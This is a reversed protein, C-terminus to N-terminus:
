ESGKDRMLREALVVFLAEMERKSLDNLRHATKIATGQDVPKSVIKFIHGDPAMVGVVKSGPDAVIGRSIMGELYHIKDAYDHMAVEFYGIDNDGWSDLPNKMVIGALSELWQEANNYEKLMTSLIQKLDVDRCGPLLPKVRKRLAYRLVRIDGEFSFANKVIREVNKSLKQYAEALELLSNGLKKQLESKWNLPVHDSHLENKDIGIAGPIDDFLLRLPDMANAIASRVLQTEKSVTRTFRSYKPLGDIFRVLPAVISLLTTNRVENPAGDNETKLVAIYADFLERHIGENKFRKVTFIDPRKLLLAIETEDIFPIYTGDRFLAMEDANVLLFLVIYLPIPGERLGFPPGKLVALIEEVKTGDNRDAGIMSSIKEWLLFLDSAKGPAIFQWAGNQIEKHFGNFLFLSRYIAVEPGFGEMGLAPKHQGTVMAEALKRRAMAASGSLRDHNIMEMKINPCSSYHTDCLDSMIGSLDRYSGIPRKDGNVFWQIATSGPHFLRNVFLRLQIESVHVRYRAEKRAVGDRQLEAAENLVALAAAHEIALEKIQNEYSVYAVILPKDDSCSSPIELRGKDHGYSYILLGDYGEKPILQQKHIDQLAMWRAEFKRVTGTVYSHRSAIVPDLPAVWQLIDELPRTVLAAKKERVAGLIDFDSGEWLRYEKAYERYLLKGRNALHDLETDFEGHKGHTEGLAIRLVRKRAPLGLPQGILNLIGITKLIKQSLPSDLSSGEIIEHIEIWRQSEAREIFSTTVASFFYDYLFELGLEPLRQAKSVRNNELFSSLSYPDKGYIFSFLTRDNQAFKRCLEPLAIVVFPHLPYLDAIVEENISLGAPLQLKSLAMHYRRAWFKVADSLIPDPKRSFCSRLLSIMEPASELFLVDEFRGQIKSWELRQQMTLGSSYEQFAQHLCVFVYTDKMESLIQLMYIDGQDPYQALYELNKGFEDLVVLLPLQLQERVSAFLRAVATTEPVTKKELLKVEKKIRSLLKSNDGDVVRSIIARHLGRVLTSNLPEFSATVPVRFFGNGNKLLAIEELFSASLAPDKQALKKRALETAPERENGCLALLFNAFSSKGMGYPGTLSWSSIRRGGLASVFRAIAETAKTTLRYQELSSILNQDRELNVSRALNINPFVFDSLLM